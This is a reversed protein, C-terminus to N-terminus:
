YLSESCFDGETCRKKWPSEPEASLTQESANGTDCEEWESAAKLLTDEDVDNEETFSTQFMETITRQEPEKSRFSASEASEMLNSESLGAQKLVDMKEQILPWLYDDATGRAVLYHIDVNSTQGIRHVRDEAQILVGPNWFLEAFVVLTASHLTVGMNAATISLLAVCRSESFQFRHCLTQREASPTSGDIRIYAVGKDELERSVADLLLKHHAFVLFKDRGCELLDLIYETVAGTKAEATHNFYVLLVEKERVKSRNCNSLEKAAASLATKTRTNAGDITITVVKRLKAPLQSLVESKLRRLMVSEELLLKLEVLNSSGSYDWGWPMQKADCYRLGFDHFRPFFTPRVAAIQTYLEVPRSMAPTGSLLIVRRAAKLLPLAAKCRATKMNKLFHSEDMILVNFPRAAVPKEVKSLLDYSIINVLGARVNDKGKLVVNISDPQLSPLWRMFAEAWTFRVSSPAVVLLPWEQRYVAAICIAQVTKGLGMDDALLLRGGQYVAFSVGDHQFPMLSHSLTPDVSSLDADPVEPLHSHSREFQLGFAQVVARPLPEVEVLPLSALTQMLKRYDELLFNWKRTKMDYNKSPLLKFAGIADAHYPLDVEFRSCTLLVCHGRVTAGPKQWGQCLNLLANQTTAPRHAGELGQLSVSAVGRVAEMLHHYDELCFNWMKTVPDYVRSPINKFLMILEANYGVEVRFRDVAHYVCRGKTVAPQLRASVTAVRHGRVPRKGDSDTAKSAKAPSLPDVVKVRGPESVKPRCSTGPDPPPPPLRPPQASSHVQLPGGSAGGGLGPVQQSVAQALREARRAQARRRNEEIRQQQEATLYVSM